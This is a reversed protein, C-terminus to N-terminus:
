ENPEKFINEIDKIHPIAGFRGSRYWTEYPPCINVEDVEDYFDQVSFLESVGNQKEAFWVQDARMINDQLLGTDHTTILLQANQPNSIPNNFLKVM